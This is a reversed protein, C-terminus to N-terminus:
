ANKSIINQIYGIYEAISLMEKPRSSVMSVHDNICDKERNSAHYSHHEVHVNHLRYVRNSSYFIKYLIIDAGWMRINSPFIGKTYNIFTKTVIPFCPGHTEPSRVEGMIDKSRSDHTNDSIAILMIDDKPKNNQYFDYITKDWDNTDITADDNLVFVLEGKAAIAGANNYDRQMYESRDLVIISLSNCKTKDHDITFIFQSQLGIATQLTENDDNDILLIIEFLRSKKYSNNLLSLLCNKLLDPRGRTPIIVSIKYDVSWGKDHMRPVIVMDPTIKYQVSM